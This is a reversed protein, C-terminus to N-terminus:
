KGESKARYLALDANEILEAPGRGHGPILTAVGFSATVRGMPTAPHPIALSEIGARLQEAVQLAAKQRFGPLLVAFEEGGFRAALGGHRRVAEALYHAVTQLCLDGALHGRTDNLRKFFDLDLLVFAIAQRTHSWEEELASTLRRRNAIGTLEDRLSQEELRSNAAALDGHARQLEDVTRRLEHTQEDVRAELRAARQRLTRSRLQAFGLVAALSLATWLLSAWSTAYWPPLVGFAWSTEPGAGGSPGVTRVRFTYGGPPLRTLEAFPEATPPSWASDIPELRTQYRLGSRFSVPAFEIRLRRTDHALEVAAPRSGPAGGFLLAGGGTTVRGLLPAPLAEAQSLAGPSGGAYRYLGSDGGLWVVGDPEALIAEVNRSPIEVMSRQEPGWGDGRRMAVVPPRTNRWLNGQADAALFSFPRPDALAALGPEEVLVARKEDLRAVRGDRRSLLRGGLRFVGTADAIRRFRVAPFAPPAEVGIVGDLSTGCWAVGGRGEVITRVEWDTGPVKGEYRWLGGERRATALGSDLGIWIRDPRSPSAALTYITNGETGALPRPADKGHVQYLGFATGVLLDEGLPLLSWGSPPLGPARRMRLPTGGGASTFVGAATAVWLDGQYRAAQTVGGLLGSRRDLVSLPSGTVLRALGTNLSLWLSGERDVVLGSVYDDELGASTDIVQDVAGDPRVLLLGGTLSGFAWRGDPLRAGSQVRNATTWRSAEPAFPTAKGDRFLFLGKERLSVLLGGEAPLIQDVRRGRFAEGGPVPELRRGALRMLGERTWIYVVGNVRFGDAYPRSDPFTGALTMAKGDWFWLRGAALYAFGGPIPFVNSVQGVAREAAPLRDILSVYRLTGRADPELLGLEDVGGVGIRGEGDSAVGFASLAKGVPILRWWAGDYIVVGGLNAIYLVGRPDRTIGFSQSEAERLPEFKQILPLGRERPEAAGAYSATTLALLLAGVLRPLRRLRM